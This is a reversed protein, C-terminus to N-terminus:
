GADLGGSPPAPSRRGSGTSAASRRSWAASTATRAPMAAARATPLLRKASIKGKTEDIEHAVLARVSEYNRRREVREAAAASRDIIRKVTKHHRRV